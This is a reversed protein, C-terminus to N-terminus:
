AYMANLMADIADMRTLGFFQGKKCTGMFGGAIPLIIFWKNMDIKNRNALLVM